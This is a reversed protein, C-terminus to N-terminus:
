TRFEMLGLDLVSVGGDVPIVTGNVYAAAPSLLWAVNRTLISPRRRSSGVSSSSSLGLGSLLGRRLVNKLPM